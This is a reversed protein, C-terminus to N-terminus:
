ASFDDRGPPQCFLGVGSVDRRRVKFINHGSRRRMEIRQMRFVWEDSRVKPVFAAQGALCFRHTASKGPNKGDDDRTSQLEVNQLNHKVNFNIIPPSVRLL